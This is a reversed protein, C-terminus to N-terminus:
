VNLATVVLRAAKAGAPVTFRVIGGGDGPIGAFGPRWRKIYSESNEYLNIAETTEWDNGNEIHGGPHSISGNSRIIEPAIWDASRNKIVFTIGSLDGDTTYWAEQVSFAKGETNVPLEQATAKALPKSDKVATALQKRVADPLKSVDFPM